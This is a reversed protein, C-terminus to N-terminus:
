IFYSLKMSYMLETVNKGVEKQPIVGKGSFPDPLIDPVPSSAIEIAGVGEVGWERLLNLVEEAYGKQGFRDVVVKLRAFKRNRRDGHRNHMEVGARTVHKVLEEPVWSFIHKGLYPMQGLGGGAYHKWGIQTKGDIVREVPAWGQCNMLVMGCASDCGSVAIKHKRPLNRQEELFQPDGAIGLMLSKTDAVEHSCVGALPCTTVNRVVDGCANTITIGTEEMGEIVKYIDEKRLWHYQLCQRTTICLENQGYEKALEGARKLQKSTLLGGPMRLRMMFYGKQLQHYVGSWKFMGIENTSLEKFPRKAIDRFDFDPSIELKDREQQTLEEKALM